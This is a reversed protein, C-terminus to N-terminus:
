QLLKNSKVDEVQKVTCELMPPANQNIAAKNLFNLSETPEQSPVKEKGRSDEQDGTETKDGSETIYTPSSTITLVAKSSNKSKCKDYISAALVKFMTTIPSGSPIKTRYTPSGLLFVPISM